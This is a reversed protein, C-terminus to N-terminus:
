MYGYNLQQPGRTSAYPDMYQPPPGSYTTMPYGGQPQPQGYGGQPQPSGYGGTYGGQGPAPGGQVIVTQNGGSTNGSCLGVCGMISGTLAAIGALGGIVAASVHAAHVDLDNITCGTNSVSDCDTLDYLIGWTTAWSAEAIVQTGAALLAIICMVM